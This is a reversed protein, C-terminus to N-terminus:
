FAGMEKRLREKQEPGLKEEKKLYDQMMFSLSIASTYRKEMASNMTNEMIKRVRKKGVIRQLNQSKLKEEIYTERLHGRGPRIKIIYGSIEEDMISKWGSLVDPMRRKADHRMKKEAIVIYDETEDNAIIAQMTISSKGTQSNKLVIGPIYRNGDVSFKRKTYEMRIKTIDDTKEWGFIRIENPTGKAATEMNRCTELLKEDNQSQYNEGFIGEILFEGNDTEKVAFTCATKGLLTEAILFDRSSSRKEAFSRSLGSKACLMKFGDETFGTMRNGNVGSVFVGYIAMSRFRSIKLMDSMTDQHLTLKAKAHMAEGRKVRELSNKTIKYFSFVTVDKGRGDREVSEGIMSYVSLESTKVTIHRISDKKVENLLREREYGKM